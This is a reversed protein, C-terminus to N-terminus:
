IRGRARHWIRAIELAIVSGQPGVAEAMIASYYGVGAGIHVVREGESIELVDLWSALASPQGNNLNRAEDIAILVNHYIRRPDADPTPTYRPTANWAADFNALKWPGPGLFDERPVTAFASALADSRIGAVARIEEAYFQRHDELSAMM